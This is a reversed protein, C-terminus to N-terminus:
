FYILLEVLAPIMTSTTVLETAPAKVSVTKGPIVYYTNFELIHTLIIISKQEVCALQVSTEIGSHNVQLNKGNNGVCLDWFCSHGVCLDWFCLHCHDFCVPRQSYRQYLIFSYSGTRWGSNVLVLFYCIGSELAGSGTPCPSIDMRSRSVMLYQSYLM